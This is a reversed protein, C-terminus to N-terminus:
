ELGKAFLQLRRLYHAAETVTYSSVPLQDAHQALLYQLRGIDLRAENLASAPAKGTGLGKLAARLFTEVERRLAETELAPPLIRLGLPWDLTGDGEFLGALGKGTSGRPSEPADYANARGYMPYSDPSESASPYGGPYAAAPYGEGSTTPAAYDAYPNDYFTWTPGAYAPDGDLATTRREASTKRAEHRAQKL